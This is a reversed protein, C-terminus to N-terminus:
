NFTFTSLILQKGNQYYQNPLKHYYANYDFSINYLNGKHFLVYDDSPPNFSSPQQSITIRVAKEGATTLYEVKPPLGKFKEPLKNFDTLTKKGYEDISSYPANNWVIVSGLRDGGANPYFDSSFNVWEVYKDDFNYQSVMESGSKSTIPYDKPYRFTFKGSKSVYKKSSVCLSFDNTVCNLYSEKYLFGFFLVLLLLPVILRLSSAKNKKIIKSMYM